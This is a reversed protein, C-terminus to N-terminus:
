GAMAVSTDAASGATQGVEEPVTVRLRQATAQDLAIRAGSVAVVRGGGSTRMTVVVEAGARLGLQALRRGGPGSAPAGRDQHQAGPAALRLRIGVPAESLPVTHDVHGHYPM